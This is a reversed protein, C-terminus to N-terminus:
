NRHVCRSSIGLGAGSQTGGTSTMCKTVFQPGCQGMSGQFLCLGRPFEASVDLGPLLTTDHTGVTGGGQVFVVLQSHGLALGQQRSALQSRGPALGQQRSAAHSACITGKLDQPRPADKGFAFPPMKM